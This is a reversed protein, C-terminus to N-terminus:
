AVAHELRRGEAVRHERADSAIGHQLDRAVQVNGHDLLHDRAFHKIEGVFREEAAGGGFDSRNARDVLDANTLADGTRDRLGDLFLEVRDYPPLFSIAMM